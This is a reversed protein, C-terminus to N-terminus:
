QAGEAADAGPATALSGLLGTFRGDQGDGGVITVPTGVPAQAFLEDMDRNALAVCGETWDEGRGGEGHIEILGGPRAGAPLRGARRAEEFRRRDEANPYDLLLAKYYKSQGRDKRAIVKYRGEPTAEDGQSLKREVNNLAMDAPFSKVLRGSRYLVLRNKEKLVVIAARGERRSWAITEDVWRRWTAVRQGDAFRSARTGAQDVVDVAHEQAQRALEGALAYDARKFRARAENLRYRAQQLTTRTPAPLAVARGFADARDLAAAAEDIAQTAEVQASDRRREAEVISDQAAREVERLRERVPRFDRFSVFRAEQRRYDLLGARLSHESAELLEPAWAAAGSSRAREVAARAADRTHEPPATRGTLVPLVLVAFGVSLTAIGLLVRWLRPRRRAKAPSM